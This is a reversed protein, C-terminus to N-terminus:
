YQGLVEKLSWTIRKLRPAEPQVTWASPVVYAFVVPVVYHESSEKLEAVEGISVPIFRQLRLQTAIEGEFMQLCIKTEDALTQAEAAENAVAFITHSGYWFGAYTTTGTRTDTGANDGIGFRRWTWEGEKILLGPRSETLPPKWSHLSEILIATSNPSANWVGDRQLRKRVSGNLINRTDSFHQILVQRLAGTMVLQTVGYSCLASLCGFRVGPTSGEPYLAEIEDSNPPGEPCAKATTM